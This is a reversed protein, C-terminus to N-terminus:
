PATGTSSQPKAASLLRKLISSAVTGKEAGTLVRVFGRTLTDSHAAAAILDSSQPSQLLRALALAWFASHPSMLGLRMVNTGQTQLPRSSASLYPALSSKRLATLPAKAEQVAQTGAEKAAAMDVVGQDVATRYAGAIQHLNSLLQAGHQDGYVARTFEPQEVSLASLRKDLNKIGGALVNDYTYTDQVANWATTGTAADGGKASQDVLLRRIATADDPRGSKLITALRDPRKAAAKVMEQGAGQRYLPVIEQYAATAQNYPEYTGLQERVVNRIGKTMGELHKKATKDWNVGEDLLRKLQHMEAFSVEDPANQIKGLIGTLPHTEPIGLKEAILQLYKQQEAASPRLSAAAPSQIRPAAFVNQAFGINREPKTGYFPTPETKQVMDNLAAKVDAMPLAPGHEAVDGINRGAADLAAKAPGVAKSPM